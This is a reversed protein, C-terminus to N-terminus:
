DPSGDYMEAIEDRAADLDDPTKVETIRKTTDM